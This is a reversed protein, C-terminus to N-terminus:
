KKTRVKEALKEAKSLLDQSKALCDEVIYEIEGLKISKRLLATANARGFESAKMRHKIDNLYNSLM